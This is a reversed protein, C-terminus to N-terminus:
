NLSMKVLIETALKLRSTDSGRVLTGQSRAFEIADHIATRTQSSAGSAIMQQAVRLAQWQEFGSRRARVAGEVIELNALQPKGRMLGLATIRNGDSGSQFLEHVAEPSVFDLYAMNRAQKLLESMRATREGSPLGKRVEEYRAAIPQMNSFLLQAEKRLDEARGPDGAADAQRAEELKAAVAARLQFKVGGGEVTELRSGMIAIVLLATGAAVLAASGSSNATVFVAVAGTTLLVMGMAGAAAQGAIPTATRNRLRLRWMDLVRERLAKRDASLGHHAGSAKV